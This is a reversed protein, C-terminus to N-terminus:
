TGNMQFTPAIWVQLKWFMFLIPASIESFDVAFDFANVIDM